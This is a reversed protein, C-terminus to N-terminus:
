TSHHHLVIEIRLDAELAAVVELLEGAAGAETRAGRGDLPNATEVQLGGRLGEPRGGGLSQFRALVAQAEGRLELGAVDQREGDVVLVLPQRAREADGGAHRQLWALEIEGAVLRGVLEACLALDAANQRQARAVEPAPAVGGDAEAAPADFQRWLKGQLRAIGDVLHLQGFAVEARFERAHAQRVRQRRAHVDAAQHLVFGIGAGEAGVEAEAPLPRRAALQEHDVAVVAVRVREAPGVVELQAIAAEGDLDVTQQLELCILALPTLSASRADVEEDRVYACGCGM